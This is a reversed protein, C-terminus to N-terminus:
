FLDKNFKTVFADGSKEPASGSGGFIPQFAGPTVPFDASNTAGSLYINGALDRAIGAARDDGTGGLYTSYRLASGEPNLVTLLADGYLTPGIGGFVTQFAGPTVPFDISNTWGTVYANGLFDVVLGTPYDDGSGGLYTSYILKSGTANLKAVLGDGDVRPGSGHFVKQFAEASVPFNTSFTNGVVYANGFGDLAVPGCQDYDSGGLYTSYILKSGTANLKAVFGDWNTGFITQVAGPTVPFNTSNTSGAVYANGFVDIAIGLAGDDDSGGLFSSYVLGTGKANLKAVFADGFSGAGNGGFKTQFAGPTSPFDGSSTTGTVYAFGALDLAIGDVYDDSSGGLYTSYVLSSGNANLKTVFGDGYLHVGTGKYTTQFAGPTVPYDTSLTNGAVYVNGALDVAIAGPSDMGNGGLYTSYVLSSGDASLKAIFADSDDTPAHAPQLPNKTPFNYSDTDGTVYANGHLDVAIEGYSEDNEDNAGGLYTSYGLVPDIVLPRTRDYAGLAFLVGSPRLAYGAAIYRKQKAADLQYAVPKHVRVEGGEIPAVLDGNEAIRLPNRPTSQGHDTQFDLQIADPAAGPAVVFDYELERQNGYYVLDIGPYVSRCEVKAYNPVDTRWKKPDSGILYNTKGPLEDAAIVAAAPNAALLKM